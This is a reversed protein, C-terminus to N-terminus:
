KNFWLVYGFDFDAPKAGAFRKVSMISNSYSYTKGDSFFGVGDYDTLYGGECYEIFEEVTMLDGHGEISIEKTM